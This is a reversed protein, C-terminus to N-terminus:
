KCLIYQHTHDYFYSWKRRMTNVEYPVSCNSVVAARTNFKNDIDNYGPVYWDSWGGSFWQLKYAIIKGQLVQYDMAGNLNAPWRCDHTPGAEIQTCTAQNLRYILLDGQGLCESFCCGAMVIFAAALVVRTMENQM